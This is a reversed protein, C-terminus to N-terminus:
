EGAIEWDDTRFAAAPLGAKNYLNPLATNSFAFRVAVPKKVKSSSVVVRDGEIRAEAPYFIRDSGAIEFERLADGKLQLGNEAYQFHIKAQGQNIEISSFLPGSFVLDKRGYIKALAWLALRRGVEQKNHPHINELDGIDHTVAMGTNSTTHLTHLQADRVLAADFRNDADYKYPAIQVFYFPFPKAWAERWSEILLPFLRYYETANPRNSEGQYWIVGAIDFQLLPHIMSNYTLGADKPWMNYRSIKASGAKFASDGEILERKMWTEIPTGGWSTNVLGIPIDLEEHLKRGFFYSVSSFDKMTEPSCPAWYGPTDDQPASAKHKPLFFLRIDPYQAQAIEEEAQLLGQLPTWEMNSQGSCIWVEGIMVNELTITEHGEITLTYPGGASPTPIEVSWKGQDSKTEYRSAAWSGSVTIVENSYSDTSWGWITATSERQLVMGDSLISPLWLKGVSINWSILLLLFALIKM